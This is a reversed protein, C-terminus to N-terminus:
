GCARPFWVTCWLLAAVRRAYIPPSMHHAVYWIHTRYPALKSRNALFADLDRLEATLKTRVKADPVKPVQSPDSLAAQVARLEAAAASSTATPAAPVTVTVATEAPLTLVTATVGSPAASGV